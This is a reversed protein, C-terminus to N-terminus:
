LLRKRSRIKFIYFTHEDAVKAVVDFDASYAHRIKWEHQKEREGDTKRNKNSRKAMAKGTELTPRTLQTGGGGRIRM